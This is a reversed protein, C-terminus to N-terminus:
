QIPQVPMYTACLNFLTPSRDISSFEFVCPKRQLRHSHHPHALPRPVLQSTRSLYPAALSVSSASLATLLCMPISSRIVAPPLSTCRALSGILDMSFPSQHSVSVPQDTSHRHYVFLLFYFISTCTSTVFALSHTPAISPSLSPPLTPTTLTM